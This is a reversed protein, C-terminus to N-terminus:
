NELRDRIFKEVDGGLIIGESEAVDRIRDASDEITEGTELLQDAPYRNLWESVDLVPTQDISERSFTQCLLELDELSDQGGTTLRGVLNRGDWEISHGVIIRDVLGRFVPDDVLNSLGRGSLYPSIYIRFSLDHYVDMPVGDDECWSITIEKESPDIQLYVNRPQDQGPYRHYLPAPSMDDFDPYNTM